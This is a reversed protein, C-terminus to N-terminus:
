QSSERLETIQTVGRLKWEHCCCSCKALVHDPQGPEINGKEEIEGNKDFHFEIGHGAWIETLYDAQSRCKPCLIKKM